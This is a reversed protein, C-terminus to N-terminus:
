LKIKKAGSKRLGLEKKGKRILSSLKSENRRNEAVEEDALMKIAEENSEIVKSTLSVLDDTESQTM